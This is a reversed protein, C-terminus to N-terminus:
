IYIRNRDPTDLGLADVAVEAMFDPIDVKILGCPKRKGVLGSHKGIFEPPWEIPM